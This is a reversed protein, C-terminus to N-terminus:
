RLNTVKMLELLEQKRARYLGQAPELRTPQILNMSPM